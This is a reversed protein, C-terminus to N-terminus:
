ELSRDEFHELKLDHPAAHGCHRRHKPNGVESLQGYSRGIDCRTISSAIAVRLRRGVRIVIASLGIRELFM